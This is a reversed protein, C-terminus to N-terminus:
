GWPDFFDGCHLLVSSLLKRDSPYLSLYMIQPDNEKIIKLELEKIRDLKKARIIRRCEQKVNQMRIRTEEVNDKNQMRVIRDEQWQLFGLCIYM